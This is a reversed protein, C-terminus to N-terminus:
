RTLLAALAIRPSANRQIAEQVGYIRDVRQVLLSAENPSLDKKLDELRDQHILWAPDGKLKLILLDRWWAALWELSEEIEVRPAQALPVEALNQRWATLLQDLAINKEALASTRKLTLALGLRGGSVCALMSSLVEPIQEREILTEAVRRIGQPVCRVVHCRSVLTAPLGHLSSAILLFLARQPPEELLKLSAHVAQETLRDAGDLIAVKFGNGYPTLSMWRAVARIQDIGIQGTESEPSITKVDPHHDQTVQRCPQCADCAEEGSKGPAECELVKALEAALCGKGIGRQGAFLYARPLRGKRLQGTLLRIVAEHGVINKWSM